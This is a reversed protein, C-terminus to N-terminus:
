SQHFREGLSKIQTYQYALFQDIIQTRSRRRIPFYQGDTMVCFDKELKEIYQMNLIVGRNPFLFRSDKCLKDSIQSFGGVYCRINRYQMATVLVHHGDATLYMLDSYAIELKQRGYSLKLTPDKEPLVRQAETLIREISDKTCPKILYDFPHLPFSDWAYDQSMTLFVILCSADKQRVARATKIGDMGKLFIDIFLLDYGGSMYQELFEEGGSFTEYSVATNHIKNWDELLLTLANLDHECDEIIAIKM